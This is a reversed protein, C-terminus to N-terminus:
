MLCLLVVNGVFSRGHKGFWNNWDFLVKVVGKPMVWVGFLSFVFSCKERALTCQVLLHNLRPVVAYWYYAEGLLIKTSWFKRLLQQGFM